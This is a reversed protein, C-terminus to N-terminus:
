HTKETIPSEIITIPISRGRPRSQIEKDPNRGMHLQTLQVESGDELTFRQTLHERTHMRVHEPGSHNVESVISDSRKSITTRRGRDSPASILTQSRESRGGRETETAPRQYRKHWEELERRYSRTLAENREVQWKLQMARATNGQSIAWKREEHARGVEAEAQALKRTLAVLGPDAGNRIMEADAEAAEKALAEAVSPAPPQPNSIRRGRTVRKRKKAAVERNHKASEQTVYAWFLTVVDSSFLGLCFGCLVTWRRGQMLFTLVARSGLGVLIGSLLSSHILTKYTLIGLAMCFLFALSPEVFIINFNYRIISLTIRAVVPLLLISSPTLVMDPSFSPLVLQEDEIM